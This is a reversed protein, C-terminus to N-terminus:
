LLLRKGRRGCQSGARKWRLMERGYYECFDIAEAVDADAERRQKGCEYLEWAALEFRRRRMIAAAKFLFAARKDVPIDRWTAFSAKAIAIAEEAMAPTSRTFHGLIEKSRSPNISDVQVPLDRPRDLIAPYSRGLRGKVDALAQDMKQRTENRSFDALPENQFPGPPPAQPKGNRSTKKEASEHPTAGRYRTSSAPVYSRNM